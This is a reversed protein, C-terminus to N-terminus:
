DSDRYTAIDQFIVRPGIVGVEVALVVSEADREREVTQVAVAEAKKLDGTMVTSLVSARNVGNPQQIVLAFRKNPSPKL